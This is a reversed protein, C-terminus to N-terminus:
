RGPSDWLSELQKSLPVQQKKDPQVKGIKKAGNASATRGIGQYGAAVRQVQEFHAQRIQRQAQVEPNDSFLDAISAMDLNAPVGDSDDDEFSIEPAPLVSGDSAVM